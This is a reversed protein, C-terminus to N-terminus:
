AAAAKRKTHRASLWGAFAGAVVLGVSLALLPWNRVVTGFSHGVVPAVFVWTWRLHKMAVLKGHQYTPAM